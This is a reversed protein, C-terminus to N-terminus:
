FFDLFKFKEQLRVKNTTQECITQYNPHSTTYFDLKIIPLKKIENRNDPDPIAEFTTFNEIEESLEIKEIKKNQAENIECDENQVM